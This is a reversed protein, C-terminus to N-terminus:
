AAGASASVRPKCCWLLLEDLRHAPHNAILMSRDSLWAQLDTDNIKPLVIFSPKAAAGRRGLYSGCCSTLKPGRAISWSRREVDFNSLCLREAKFIRTFNGFRALVFHIAKALGCRRESREVRMRMELGLDNAIFQGSIRRAVLQKDFNNGDIAGDINFLGYSRRATETAPPSVVTEREGSARRRADGESRWNFGFASRRRWAPFELKFIKPNVSSAVDFIRAAADGTQDIKSWSKRCHINLAEARDVCSARRTVCGGIKSTEFGRSMCSRRDCTISVNRIKRM